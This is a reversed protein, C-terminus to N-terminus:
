VPANQLYIVSAFRFNSKAINVERLKGAFDYIDEFLYRHIEALSKYVGAELRDLFGTESTHIFDDCLCGRKMSM